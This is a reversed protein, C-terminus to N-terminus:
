VLQPVSIGEPSPSWDTNEDGEDNDDFRYNEICRKVFAAVEYPTTLNHHECILKGWFAPHQKRSEPLAKIRCEYIKKTRRCVISVWFWVNPKLLINRGSMSTYETIPNFEPETAIEWEGDILLNISKTVDLFWYGYGKKDCLKCLWNM